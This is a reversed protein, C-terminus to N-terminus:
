EAAWIGSDFTQCLRQGKGEKALSKGLSPRQGTKSFRSQKHDFFDAVVMQWGKAWEWPRSNETFPEGESPALPGSLLSTQLCSLPGEVGIDLLPEIM